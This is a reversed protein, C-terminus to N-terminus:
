QVDRLNFDTGASEWQDLSWRLGDIQPGAEIERQQLTFFHSPAVSVGAM